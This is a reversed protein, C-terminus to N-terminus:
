WRYILTTLYIIALNIPRVLDNSTQLVLPFGYNQKNYIQRVVEQLRKGSYLAKVPKMISTIPRRQAIVRNDRRSAVLGGASPSPLYPELLYPALVASFVRGSAEGFYHGRGRV